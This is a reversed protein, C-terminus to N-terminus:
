AAATRVYVEDKHARAALAYGLGRLAERNAAATAPLMEVLIVPWSSRITRAAGLIAHSEHGEVDLMVADVDRLGLDDLSLLDIPVAEAPADRPAVRWSGASCHPLMSGRGTLSSLAERRLEVNRVGWMELNRRACEHLKPEPEFAVVHKFHGALRRPWFGAHAGAQVCRRRQRCRAIAHDMDPLGRLVARHCNEPKHDYDPWWAGFDERFTIGGSM